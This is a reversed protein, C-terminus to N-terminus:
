GAAAWPMAECRERACRLSTKGDVLKYKRRAKAIKNFRTANRKITRRCRRLWRQDTNCPALARVGQGAGDKGKRCEKDSKSIKSLQPARRLAELFQTASVQKGLRSYIVREHRGCARAPGPVAGWKAVCLGSQARGGSHGPGRV